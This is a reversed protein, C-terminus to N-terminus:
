HKGNTSRTKLSDLTERNLLVNRLPKKTRSLTGIDKGNLTCVLGAGNGVSLLFDKGAKWKMRSFPMFNHEQKKVGDIVLRAWVTDKAVVSLVLSDRIGVYHASSDAVRASVTSDQIKKAEWEKVVNDFAIEPPPTHSNSNRLFYISASLAVILISSLIILVKAKHIGLLSRPIEDHRPVKTQVLNKKTVSKKDTSSEDSATGEIREMFEQINIGVQEAYAKIFARIYAEPLNPLNGDEVAQLFKKSIHTAAAIDDISRGQSERAKRLEECIIKMAENKVIPILFPGFKIHLIKLNM